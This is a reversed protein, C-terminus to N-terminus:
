GGVYKYTNPSDKFQGDADYWPHGAGMIVDATSNYIMEQGIAAYNNRSDNHAVFGAPTAHTWEVSTVVGTSKGKGEAVELAHVVPQEDLDVGIAGGFTKFGTSMVTASAASDTYCEKVWDFESWAMGPDYGLGYCSDTSDKYGQYTSMAFRFPFDNYVQGAATGYQYYSAAETHRFGRGDAIMVIINKAVPKKPGAAATSVTLLSLIVLCVLVIMLRNKHINM